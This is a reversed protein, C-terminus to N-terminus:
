RRRRILEPDNTILGDVGLRILRRALSPQNITYVWVKLGRQHALEIAKATVQRNWVIVRAGTRAAEELWRPSLPKSWGAPKAGGALLTPPGLAGLPQGPELEHFQRLYEWDFSQVIVRGLWGNQRLLRACTRADGAKREILATSRTQILELAEALLPVKTGTFRAHFWRGADLTQIDSATRANVEVHRKRWHRRADTTRDLEADHIVVPVEDRSHRYDLEVLDAGAQLALDFSPLTNEPAHACYGRHGIVLPRTSSILAALPSPPANTM